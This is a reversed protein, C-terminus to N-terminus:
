ADGRTIVRRSLFPQCMGTRPNWYWDHRRGDRLLFLWSRFLRTLGSAALLAASLGHFREWFLRAESVEYSESGEAQLVQGFQALQPVAKGQLVRFDAKEKAILSPNTTVGDILGMESAQRIEDLNATDLFFKM